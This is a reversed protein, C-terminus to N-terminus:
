ILSKLLSFFKFRLSSQESTLENHIIQKNETAGYYDITENLKNQKQKSYNLQRFVLVLLVYSVVLTVLYYTYYEITDTHYEVVHDNKPHISESKSKNIESSEADSAEDAGNATLFLYGNLMVFLTLLNM